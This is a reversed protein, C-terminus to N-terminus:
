KGKARYGLEQNKASAYRQDGTSSFHSSSMRRFIEEVVVDELNVAIEDATNKELDGFTPKM